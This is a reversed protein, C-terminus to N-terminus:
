RVELGREAFPARARALEAPSPPPVDACPFRLGLREWKHEGLRHFGLVEVAEVVELEAVFAALGDVNAPDDTWGPVLVFRVVTPIGREDLRRALELTPAVDAGTVRRHIEADFSKLDLLVLDTVALLADTAGAVPQGCTDLATHLGREGVEEFLRQVFAPHLLPEGGSVTVGGGAVQLFREYGGLEALVDSVRMPTGWARKWTDPNHCYVCRLPCGSTFVVFRTGPGDTGTSVDWSHIPAAPDDRRDRGPAAGGPARTARSPVM